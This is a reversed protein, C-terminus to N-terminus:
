LKSLEIDIQGATLAGAKSLERTRNEPTPKWFNDDWPWPFPNTDRHDPEVLYCIAADALQNEYYNSDHEADYGEVEIQRIREAAIYDLGTPKFNLNATGYDFLDSASYNTNENNMADTIADPYELLSSIIDIVEEKTFVTKIIPKM